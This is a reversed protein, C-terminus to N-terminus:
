LLDILTARVIQEARDIRQGSPVEILVAIAYSPLDAPALGIFWAM